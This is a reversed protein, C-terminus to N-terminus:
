IPSILLLFQQGAAAVARGSDPTLKQVGLRPLRTPALLFASLYVLLCNSRSVL